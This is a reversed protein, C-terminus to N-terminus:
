LTVMTIIIIIIIIFIIIDLLHHTLSNLASSLSGLRVIGSIVISCCLAVSQLHSSHSCVLCQQLASCERNVGAVRHILERVPHVHLLELTSSLEKLSVNCRDCQCQVASHQQLERKISEDPVAVNSIHAIYM